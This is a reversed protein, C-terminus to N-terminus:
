GQFSGDQLIGMLAEFSRAKNGDVIFFMYMKHKPYRANVISEITREFAEKGENYAPICIFLEEPMTLQPSHTQKSYDPNTEDYKCCCCNWACNNCGRQISFLIVAGLKMAFYFVLVAAFGVLVWQRPLTIMVWVFAVSIIFQLLIMFFVWTRAKRQEIEEV